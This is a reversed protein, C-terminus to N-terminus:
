RCAAQQRIAAVISSVIVQRFFRFGRRGGIVFRRRGVVLLATIFDREFEHFEDGHGGSIPFSARRRSTEGPLGEFDASSYVSERQWSKSLHRETTALGTVGAFYLPALLTLGFKM